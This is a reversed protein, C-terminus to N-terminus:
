IYRRSCFRSDDRLPSCRVATDSSHREGIGHAPRTRPLSRALAYKGLLGNRVAHGFQWSRVSSGFTPHQRSHHAIALCGISSFSRIIWCYTLHHVTSAAIDACSRLFPETRATTQLLRRVMFVCFSPHASISTTLILYLLESFGRGFYPILRPM